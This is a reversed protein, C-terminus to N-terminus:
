KFYIVIENNSEDVTIESVLQRIITRAEERYDLLTEKDIVAKAENHLYNIENQLFQSRERLHKLDEINRSFADQSAARVDDSLFENGINALATNNANNLTEIRKNIRTLNDKKTKMLLNKQHDFASIDEDNNVIQVVADLVVNEIYDINIEKTSCLGDKHKPCSYVRRLTKKCGSISSSANMARNCQKCKIIGSLLYIFKEDKCRYTSRENIRQQVIDFLEPEIIKDYANDIRVEDYEKM